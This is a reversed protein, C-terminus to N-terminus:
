SSSISKGMLKSFISLLHIQRYNKIDNNNGNKFVPIVTAIKLCDPFIGDNLFSNFLHLLPAESASINAIFPNWSM